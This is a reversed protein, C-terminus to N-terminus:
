QPKSVKVWRFGFTQAQSVTLPILLGNAMGVLLTVNGSPKAVDTWQNENIGDYYVTSQDYTLNPQDYQEKGMTNVNTYTQAGPKPVSTWM